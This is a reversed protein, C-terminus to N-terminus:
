LGAEKKFRVMSDKNIMVKKLITIFPTPILRDKCFIPGLASPAPASDQRGKHGLTEQSRGAKNLSRDQVMHLVRSILSGWAREGRVIVSGHCFRLSVFDGDCSGDM